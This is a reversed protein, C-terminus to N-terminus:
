FLADIKKSLLKVDFATPDADYELDQQIIGKQDIIYLHPLNVQPKGPTAKVYSAAVQGCDFLFPTSIKFAQAYQQVAPQTDPPIVISLVAVRGFYRANLEELIKSVQQCHPCQTKMFELLLVKGRYDQLDHQKLNADPLSFGPARRSFISQAGCLTVILLLLTATKM